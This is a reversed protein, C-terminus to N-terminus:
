LELPSALPQPGPCYTRTRTRAHARANRSASTRLTADPHAGYPSIQCPSPYGAPRHSRLRKPGPLLRLPVLALSSASSPRGLSLSASSSGAGQRPAAAARFAAIYRAGRGPGRPARFGSRAAHPAPASGPQQRVRTARTLAAGARRWRAQLPLSAAQSGQTHRTVHISGSSAPPEWYSSRRQM